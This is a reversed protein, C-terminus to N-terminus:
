HQIIMTSTSTLKLTKFGLFWTAALKHNCTASVTVRSGASNIGDPWSSNVTLESSVIGPAYSRVVSDVTSNDASPGVQTSAKSGHVAAYRAGARVCEALTNYSYVSIGMDVLGVLMMLVLPCVIAMELVTAGSRPALGGAVRMSAAAPRCQTNIKHGGCRSM